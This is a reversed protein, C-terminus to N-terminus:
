THVCRTCPRCVESPSQILGFALGEFVSHVSLAMGLFIARLGGPTTAENKKEAGEGIEEDGTGDIAQYGGIKVTDPPSYRASDHLLSRRAPESENNSTMEQQTHRAHEERCQECDVSNGEEDSLPAGDTIILSAVINPQISNTRTLPAPVVRKEKKKKPKSSQCGYAMQEIVLVIFFGIVVLFRDFPYSTKLVNSFIKEWDETIDPLLHLFTVGLFVGGSFCNLVGLLIQKWAKEKTEEKAASGKRRSGCWAGVVPVLSFVASIFFLAFLLGISTSLDGPQQTTGESSPDEAAM